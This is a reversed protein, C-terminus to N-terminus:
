VINCFCDTLLNSTRSCGYLYSFIGKVITLLAKDIDYYVSSAIDNVSQICYMNYDDADIAISNDNVWGLEDNVLFWSAKGKKNSRKINDTKATGKEQRLMRKNERKM